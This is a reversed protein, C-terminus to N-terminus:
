RSLPQSFPSGHASLPAAFTPHSHGGPSAQQASLASVSLVPSGMMMADGHSSAGEGSGAAAEANDTSTDVAMERSASQDAAADGSAQLSLSIAASLSADSDEMYSDDAM